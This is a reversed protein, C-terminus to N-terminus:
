LNVFTEMERRVKKQKWGKYSKRMLVRVAFYIVIFLLNIFKCKQILDIEFKRMLSVCSKLKNCKQM